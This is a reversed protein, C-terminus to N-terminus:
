DEGPLPQELQHWADLAIRGARYFRSVMDDGHPGLLELRIAEHGGVKVIAVVPGNLADRKVHLEVDDM